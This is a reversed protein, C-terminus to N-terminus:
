ANWNMIKSGYDKLWKKHIKYDPMVKAVERWFRESHNMEKRHCLEHVVVYDQVAEPAMMLLCNFNLNGQSSCSGWRTKQARITIRGYTVGVQEAYCAVKQPFVTKAKDALLELEKETLKRSDRKIAQREKVKQLSKEIWAKKSNVFRTIEAQSIFLPARVIIRADSTVELSMTKRNSRRIEIQKMDNQGKNKCKTDINNNRNYVFPGKDQLLTM